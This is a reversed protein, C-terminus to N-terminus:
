RREDIRRQKALYEAVADAKIRAVVDDPVRVRAPEWSLEVYQYPYGLIEDAKRQLEDELNKQSNADLKADNAVAFATGVDEGGDDVVATYAVTIDFAYENM